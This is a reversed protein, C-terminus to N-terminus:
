SPKDVVYDGPFLLFLDRVSNGPWTKSPASQLPYAISYTQNKRSNNTGPHRVSPTCDLPRRAPFQTTRGRFEGPIALEPESLRANADLGAINEEM